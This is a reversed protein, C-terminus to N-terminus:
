VSVLVFLVFFFLLLLRIVCFDMQFGGLSKPAVSSAAAGDGNRKENTQKNADM